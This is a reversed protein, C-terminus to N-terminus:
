RQVILIFRLGTAPIRRSDRTRGTRGCDRGPNHGAPNRELVRDHRGAHVPTGEARSPQDLEDLRLDLFPDNTRVTVEVM